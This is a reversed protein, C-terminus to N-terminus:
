TAFIPSLSDGDGALRLAALLREDADTTGSLRTFTSAPAAIACGSLTDLIVTLGSGTSAGATKTTGGERRLPRPTTATVVVAVADSALALVDATSVCVVAVFPLVTATSVCAVTIFPLVAATSVRVAAAVVRVVATPLSILPTVMLASTSLLMVLLLRCAAACRSVSDSARVGHCGTRVAVSIMRIQVTGQDVM